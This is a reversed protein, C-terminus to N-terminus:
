RGANELVTIAAEVSYRGIREQRSVLGNFHDRIDLALNSGDAALLARLVNKRDTTAPLRDHRTGMRGATDAAMMAEVATTDTGAQSVYAYTLTQTMM